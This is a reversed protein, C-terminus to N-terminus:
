SVDKFSLRNGLSIYTPDVRKWFAGSSPDLFPGCLKLLVADLNVFFGHSAAKQLVVHMNYTPLEFSCMM